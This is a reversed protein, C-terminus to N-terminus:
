PPVPPIPPPCSSALAPVSKIPVWSAMGATWVLTDDNVIGQARMSTVQAATQGSIQQGNVYVFYATEEPIPPPVPQPNTSLNNNAVGGMVNGIGMGVGFGMVQAGAGTNAAAKDLVDFSREMQYVDRGALNMRAVTAKTEKLKVFSPDDQPVNISMISFDVLSIGYKDFHKNIETNCYESIDMLFANIDLISIQDRIIKQAIISSLNSVLKGKFYSDISDASFSTM